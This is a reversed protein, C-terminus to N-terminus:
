GFRRRLSAHLFQMRKPGRLGHRDAEILMLDMAALDEHTIWLTRDYGEECRAFLGSASWNKLSAPSIGLHRAIEIRDMWQGGAERRAQEAIARLTPDTITAPSWAAWTRRDRVFAVLDDMDWWCTIAPRRAGPPRLDPLWGRAFWRLITPRTVCFMQAVERTGYPTPRPRQSQAVIGLDETIGRIRALSVGLIEAIIRKSYGQAVLAAVTARDADSVVPNYCRATPQILGRARLPALYRQVAKESVGLLNALDRVTIVPYAAVLFRDLDDCGDPLPIRRAARFRRDTAMITRAREAHRARWLGAPMM